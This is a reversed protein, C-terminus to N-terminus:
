TTTFERLHPEPLIPHLLLMPQCSLAELTLYLLESIWPLWQDGALSSLSLHESSMQCCFRKQEKFGSFLSSGDRYACYEVEEQSPPQPTVSKRVLRRYGSSPVATKTTLDSTKITSEPLLCLSGGISSISGHSSDEM